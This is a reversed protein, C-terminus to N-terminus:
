QYTKLVESINRVFKVIENEGKNDQNTWYNKELNKVIANAAVATVKGTACKTFLIAEIRQKILDCQESWLLSRKRYTEWQKPTIRLHTRLASMSVIGGSKEKALNFYEESKKSFEEITNYLYKDENNKM